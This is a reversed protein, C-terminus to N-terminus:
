INSPSTCGEADQLQHCVEHKRVDSHKSVASKLTELQYEATTLTGEVKRLQRELM